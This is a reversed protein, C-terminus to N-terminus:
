AEMRAPEPNVSQQFYKGRYPAETPEDLRKFILMAIPTGAKLRVPWPLHRTIEITLGGEFGPDVVTNQITVFRRANSSKDKVEIQLDNPVKFTEITSALRGWLPWVWRDQRLRVDYGASTLGFSLGNTTGRECFPTIIREALCRKRITQASLVTM